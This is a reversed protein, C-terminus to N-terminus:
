PRTHFGNGRRAATGFDAAGSIFKGEGSECLPTIGYFNSHAGWGERTCIFPSWIKTIGLDWIAKPSGKLDAAHLHCFKQNQSVLDEPEYDLDPIFAMVVGRQQASIRRALFLNERERSVFLHLEM